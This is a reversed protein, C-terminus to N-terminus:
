PVAGKGRDKLEPKAADPATAEAKDSKSKPAEIKLADAALYRGLIQQGVPSLAGITISIFLLVLLYNSVTVSVKGYKLSAVGPVAVPATTDVGPRDSIRKHLEEVRAQFDTKAQLFETRFRENVQGTQALDQEIKGVREILRSASKAVEEVAESSRREIKTQVDTSSREVADLRRVLDTVIAWREAYLERHETLSEAVDRQNVALTDVLQQLRAVDKLNDILNALADFESRSPNAM